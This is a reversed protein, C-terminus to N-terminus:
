ISRILQQTLDGSVYWLTEYFLFDLANADWLFQLSAPFEDDADWFRVCVPFFDFVDVIYSVDGKGWARGGRAILAQELRARKGAFRQAVPSNLDEHVTQTGRIGHLATTPVFEGRLQPTDGTRALVDYISLVANFGAPSGDPRLVLGDSRRIRHAEGLFRIPIEEPSPVIGLRRCMAEQDHTLFLARAREAMIAYNDQRILSAM